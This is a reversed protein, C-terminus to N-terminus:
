QKTLVRYPLRKNGSKECVVAMRNLTDEQCNGENLRFTFENLYLDLHKHSVHHFTGNVGRKLVAWVSEIGNTHAQEKVYENASHNVSEHKYGSSESLGSYGAHEDTYVTSGEKVHEKIKGHLVSKNVGDITQAIVKGGRERVGLVAQKGVTGRGAKLKKNGHKNKEKGGIYAEDVEVVNELKFGTEPSCANRIRQLMFWATKQTVGLEKSLQLSSVGKRATMVMYIAILWIRVGVNSAHMVTGTKVTFQKRCDRHWYTYPKSKARSINEIGGCHPCIPKAGWRKHELWTVAKGETSFKNLLQIISITEAQKKKM